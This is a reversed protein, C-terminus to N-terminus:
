LLQYFLVLVKGTVGSNLSAMAETNRSSVSVTTVDRVTGNEGLENAWRYIVEDERSDGAVLLFDLVENNAMDKGRLTEFITEAATRKNWETSELLLGGEYPVAQVHYGQCCDNLHNVCDGSLRAAAQEDEVKSYDFWISCHRREIISGEIREHYYELIKIIANQWNDMREKDAARFWGDQGAQKIFGGNEAVMGIGPTLRLLSDMEEPTRGSMVYVTNGPAYMLDTLAKITRQPSHFPINLPSGHAALTGEYDLMFLRKHSKKYKGALDNVSLRPISITHQRSQQEYATDLTELFSKLWHEADHSLVIDKIASWRQEKEQAPMTLAQFIAEASRRYDWPNISLDNSKFLCSSGTFESLILSGHKKTSYKGDQCLIFDHSILNMGERLSSIMLADAASLLALYQVYDLDKRLYVLPQHSLTSYTSIIRSMIQSVATDLESRGGTSTTIQIFVVKDRMEPHNKLFLEYALLKQRVGRVHDLKDRGAILYKGAYKIHLRQLWNLVESDHRQLELIQSDIGIPLTAVNVFRDELQVGSPTAEVCLIRNCTQLFHLCYEETQFGILNAGLVGELLEKRKALCRFVESSPFAIHLFFGIKADPLKQRVMKPVLLLHYDHIWITDGRKYNKVIMEAFIENIKVYYVWSHDLYAKSKPSDPIQYHFVSWLITKCFHLYHGNMDSDKAFCVVADHDTFLKESIAAKCEEDLVDTPMGLTGVWTVHELTENKIAAYVANRLGGNGQEGAQVTWEAKRLAREHSSERSDRQNLKGLSSKARHRRSSSEHELVASPYPADARLPPQTFYDTRGWAPSHPESPALTAILNNLGTPVSPIRPVPKSSPTPVLDGNSM